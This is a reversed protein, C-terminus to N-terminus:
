NSGSGCMSKSPQFRQSELEQLIEQFAFDSNRKEWSRAEVEAEAEVLKRQAM